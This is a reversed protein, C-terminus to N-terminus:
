EPSATVTVDIKIIGLPQYVEGKRLAEAAEWPRGLVLHLLGSGAATGTIEIFRTGPVGVMGTETKASEFRSDSMMVVGTLGFSSLLEELLLWRFGTSPNEQVM